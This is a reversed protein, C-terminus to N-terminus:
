QTTGPNQVWSLWAAASAQNPLWGSQGAAKTVLQTSTVSANTISCDVHGNGDSTGDPTCVFTGFASSPYLAQTAAPTMPATAPQTPAAIAEIWPVIIPVTTDTCCHAVGNQVAFAWPAGQARGQQFYNLQNWTGAAPDLANVLILTPTKASAPTVPVTNLWPDGPAYEIGGLIRDPAYSEMTATLMGAASFGFLIFKSTALEPHNLNIAFQNMAALLVRGQGKSADPQLDGHSISNCQYAFVMSFNLSLAAKQVRPDNLVYFSDDRDYVVIVGAQPVSPDSLRILFQCPGALDEGSITPVQVLTPNVSIVAPPVLSESVTGCGALPAACSALAIPLIRTSLALWPSSRM